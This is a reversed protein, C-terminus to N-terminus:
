FKGRQEGEEPVLPSPKRKFTMKRPLSRKPARETPVEPRAPAEVLDEVDALADEAKRELEAMISDSLGSVEADDLDGEM